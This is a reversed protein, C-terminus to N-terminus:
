IYKYFYFFEDKKYFAFMGFCELEGDYIDIKVKKTPLDFPFAEVILKIVDVKFWGRINPKYIKQIIRIAKKIKLDDGDAALSVMKRNVAKQREKCTDGCYKRNLPGAFEISCPLFACNRIYKGSEYRKFTM